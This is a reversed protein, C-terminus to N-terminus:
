HGCDESEYCKELGVFLGAIGKSRFEVAFANFLVCM